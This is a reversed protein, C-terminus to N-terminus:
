EEENDRMRGVLGIVVMVAMSLVAVAIPSLVFVLWFASSIIFQYISWICVVFVIYAIITEFIGFSTHAAISITENYKEIGRTSAIHMIIDQLFELVVFVVAAIKIISFIESKPIEIIRELINIECIDPTSVFRGLLFMWSLCIMMWAAISFIFRVLRPKEM